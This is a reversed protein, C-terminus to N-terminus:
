HNFLFAPSNILAWALDQVTTLRKNAIQKTSEAVDRRLQLVLPDIPTPKSLFDVRERLEKLKPDIPLPKKSEVVAAIRQKLEVDIGRYYKALDTKQGDTRQSPDVALIKRLDEPLGLGIPSPSNTVSIRFRGIVFKPLDFQQILRFTLVTGGSHSIPQKAEFTAWHLVGISGAVAWGNTQAGVGDILQRVDFREQTFDALPRRLEVKAKLDANSKPAAEVVFENLVFNGDDARGPGGNPLKADPLVELRFGTIGTLNTEAVVTYVGRDNNGSAFISLDPQKELKVRNTAELKTPDLTTWVGGSSQRLEWEALRAPFTETEFKALEAELQKTKEAKQREAEAIKPAIAKEYAATEEKTRALALEREKELKARIPAAYAEREQLAAALRAHDPDILQMVELAKAVEEPTPPRNLVRVFVESILRKDDREGAVLKALANNPDSIADALTPGSVLAMVSGLQMGSSRECECASERVPRGFTGLFRTPLDVGSDPLEAARTGPAVGPFKSTSGTARVIADYLVEAALRKPIAHSYNIKDDANWKSTEVSLQYVRSTCMLRLMHQVDFRSRIFEDTLYDLLEPNTPPNGARIDDIPEIIGVGFLYGWLRNVYSRAFYVNDPSTIWAALEVRRSANAPASYKASYPFKPAAPRGTREHVVEVAANDGVIEFLPKAGEVATGEISHDGSAADRELSVKAFFAATEYYQDQSWREFPHDHCKNCNFRVGLFLHTTNEMIADPTRLVKFYSAAPNERNSGSATIIKRVLEDYPGNKAVQDRIWQRFAAAGETGLFKRNVQLLDAWKNTWYEVYEKSGILRDVLAERKTKSDRTDALYARVEDATPPLGTLDLYVRRLFELDSCLGSPRIKVRKWKAAVLEDIRNYKPPEEWVFDKWEGMVTMITASYAGEFRALIPAEGRRVATVLGATGATVIETNGSEIYAERTVDRTKGDSYTAIVRFQQREAIRQLTPNKPFLEIRAVRPTALDIKAGNAIWNRIIEYYPDGRRVVQGGVHPAESTAKLLMLSDEPSAVNVRRSALDDTLERVDFLPDNGRLSMKFGNKGKAAGHCTGQNCGIRSLVPAVDRIFNAAFPADLGAVVVPIDLSKEGLTLQLKAQGNAKPRVLGGRTISAIDSTVQAALMRTADITENSDLRATVVLQAYDFRHTLQISAPEAVLGVVKVGTPMSEAKPEDGAPTPQKAAATAGATPRGSLPVPVFEKVVAGNAPDILRVNGDSGAAALLRRDPRFAVAYIGSQPLSTKAILKVGDVHYKDLLEKEKPNRGFVEKAMIAKINDPLSTDFEYSYVDVEGVGDLSSAAAIRKGDHSITVANIRGKMAPMQRILNSDDGIRRETLRHMRYVKAVGDAGGIVIEDRKPHRAVSNIGGKLAGPTISTVNDVFRQTAVETLKASMDRSVSVLHSGDVSFVTDLVWDNHAGQFLLQEGSKADIVRLSNDPGGFAIKNGDPSWTAGYLTDYGIPVSLQLKRKEVDWVQIEGLRAPLGGAAALQKGSPSFKVSEIRESMGVLRAVRETTEVNILIVENFGAVALLKGDPSFDLSTIVPPLTYVPPHKMDFRSVSKPTDDAAGQAIWERILKIDSEGLPPKDKPMEAVGDSPTILEVLYSEDPKGPVLAAQKSKGGKVLGDFKTMVFGGDAKAPQHCGHCNAQLIPRIQEYYSIKAATAAPKPKEEAYGAGLGVTVLLGALVCHGPKTILM